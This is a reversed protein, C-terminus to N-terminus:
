LVKNLKTNLNAFNIIYLNKNANHKQDYFLLVKYYIM